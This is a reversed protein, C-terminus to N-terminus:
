LCLSDDLNMVKRHYANKKGLVTEIGQISLIAKSDQKHRWEPRVNEWRWNETVWDVGSARLCRSVPSRCM